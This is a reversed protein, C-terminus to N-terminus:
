IYLSVYKATGVDHVKIVALYYFLILMLELLASFGLSPWKFHM